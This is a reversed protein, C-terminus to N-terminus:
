CMLKNACLMALAKLMLSDICVNAAHEVVFM